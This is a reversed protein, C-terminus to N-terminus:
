KALMGTATYVQGNKRIYLVGNEIFKVAKAAEVNEVATTEDAIWIFQPANTSPLQLYAKGAALNGKAWRYFGVGNEGKMFIYANTRNADYAVANTAGVLYNTGINNNGETTANFTYSGENAEVIVGTGAPIIDTITSFTVGTENYASVGHVTVGSPITVNFSPCFTAFGAGSVHLTATEISEYTVKITRINAQGGATFTVSSASGEWTSTTYTGTTTSLNNLGSGTFEIKTMTSGSLTITAGSYARLETGTSTSNWIRTSTSTGNTVSMSIPAITYPTNEILNTAQGSAPKNIGLASLGADSNFIFDVSNNDEDGSDGSDGGTSGSVVEIGGVYMAKSTGSLSVEITGSLTSNCTFTFTQNKNATGSIVSTATPATLATGGVTVGTVAATGGTSAKITVSTVNNYATKSTLTFNGIATSGSGFQVGEYQTNYSGVTKSCTWLTELSQKSTFDVGWAM